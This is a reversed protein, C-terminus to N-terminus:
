FCVCAHALVQLLMPQAFSHGFMTQGNCQEEQECLDCNLVGNWLPSKCNLQSVNRTRVMTGPDMPIFLHGRDRSLLEDFAQRQSSPVLVRICSVMDRMCLVLFVSLASTLNEYSAPAGTHM